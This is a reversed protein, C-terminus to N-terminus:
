ETNLVRVPDLRVARLTPPLCAVAAVAVLIFCVGCYTGIDVASIGYIWGRIVRSVAVAGVMGILIGLGVLYMGQKLVLGAARNAGSGLALRIGIEHTRTRVFCALVGYLGISSLVLGTLAFLGVLVSRFKPQFLADSLRADMTQVSPVPIDPDVQQIVARLAGALDLQDSQMRVLVHMNLRPRWGGPLYFTAPTTTGPGLERVDGVVGVVELERMVDYDFVLTKGLPDEGPFYRRAFTQNVVTVLRDGGGDSTEFVRGALLPVRAAQFYGETAFRRTASVRDAATVPPREAAWVDNTPGEGSIPPRDVAGIARVGPIAALRGLLEDWVVAVEEFTEYKFSPLTVRAYLLDETQFGPDEAQLELFSRVLLGSAVMLMLSLGVQAVVLTNRFGSRLSTTGPRSGTRLTDAIMMDTARLAPVVAFLPVMLLSVLLTFGAVGADICIAQLRPLAAPAFSRLAEGGAYAFALGVAGGGLAVLLGETVLQRVLRSRSAGLALRSALEVRRTVSRAMFLSAVNACAVLPVLSIIAVLILLTDKASGFFREHLSVLSVWWGAKVDPHADAISRAIFAMQTEAQWISVGHRLRGVAYFNNNGRGQAYGEDRQLPIWLDVGAPFDFGAPMVGVIEVTEGELGIASGVAAPDGGYRRQWFGHGLIVVADRGTVEEEPLFTRGLQPPVGLTPFLNASVRGATVREGEDTGTVFLTQNFVTFAGLSEFADTGDRYDVYDSYSISNQTVQESNSWVWVLRDPEPFPLPQLVAVNFTSFMLSVAGIGIGLIMVAAVAFGPGRRSSRLAFRLDSWADGVLSSGYTESVLRQSHKGLRRYLRHYLVRRVLYRAGVLLAHAWYWLAARRPSRTLMVTEVYIERMDGVVTERVPGPPLCYTLFATALRPPAPEHEETTM